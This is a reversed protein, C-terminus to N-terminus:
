MQQDSHVTTMLMNCEVMSHWCWLPSWCKVCNYYIASFQTICITNVRAIKDGRSESKRRLEVMWKRISKYKTVHKRLTLNRLFFHIIRVGSPRFGHRSSVFAKACHVYLPRRQQTTRKSTTKFGCPRLNISRHEIIVKASANRWCIGFGLEVGLLTAVNPNSPVIQSQSLVKSSTWYSQNGATNIHSTM